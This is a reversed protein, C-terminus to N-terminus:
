VGKGYDSSQPICLLLVAATCFWYRVAPKGQTLYNSPWAKGLTVYVTETLQTLIEQRKSSGELNEDDDTDEM